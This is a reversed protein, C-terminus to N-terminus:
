RKMLFGVGQSVVVSLFLLYIFRMPIAVANKYGSAFGPFLAGFAHFGDIM